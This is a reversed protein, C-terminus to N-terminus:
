RGRSPILLERRSWQVFNLIQGISLRSDLKKIIWIEIYLNQKIKTTKQGNKTLLQCKNKNTKWTKYNNSSHFLNTSSKWYIIMTRGLLKRSKHVVQARGATKRAGSFALPCRSSIIPTCWINVKRLLIRVPESVTWDINQNNSWDTGVGWRKLQYTEGM